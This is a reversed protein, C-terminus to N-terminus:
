DKCYGYYAIPPAIARKISYSVPILLWSQSLTQPVFYKNSILVQPLLLNPLHSPIDWPPGFHGPM